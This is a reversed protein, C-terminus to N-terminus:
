IKVKYNKRARNTRTNRNSNKVGEDNSAEEVMEESAVEVPEAEVGKLEKLAYYGEKFSSENDKEKIDRIDDNYEPVEWTGNIEQISINNKVALESITETLDGQSNGSTYVCYGRSTPVLWCDDVVPNKAKWEIKAENLDVEDTPQYPLKKIQKIDPFEAKIDDMVTKGNVEGKIFYAVGNLVCVGDTFTMDFDPKNKSGQVSYTEVKPEKPETDAKASVPQAIDVVPAKVGGDNAAEPADAAVAPAKVADENVAAVPAKVPEEKVVDPKAIDVAVDANEPKVPEAPAVKPAVDLDPQSSVKQALENVQRMTLASKEPKSYKNGNGSVQYVTGNKGEFFYLDASEGSLTFKTVKKDDPFISKSLIAEKHLVKNLTYGSVVDVRNSVKSLDNNKLAGELEAYAAMKKDFVNATKDYRTSSYDLDIGRRISGDLIELSKLVNRMSFTATDGLMLGIKKNKSFPNFGTEQLKDIIELNKAIEPTVNELKSMQSKYENMEKNLDAFAGIVVYDAKTFAKQQYPKDQMIASIADLTARSYKANNGKILSTRMKVRNITKELSKELSYTADFVHKDLDSKEVRPKIEDGVGNRQENSNRSVNEAGLSATQHHKEKYEDLIYKYFKNGIKIDDLSTKIKGEAQLKIATEIVTRYYQETGEHSNPKPEYAYVAKGEKNDVSMLALAITKENVNSRSILCRGSKKELITKKNVSDVLKFGLGSFSINYNAKKTLGLEKVLRLFDDDPSPAKPNYEREKAWNKWKQVEEVDKKNLTAHEKRIKDELIKRQEEDTEDKLLKNLLSINTLSSRADKDMFGIYADEFGEDVSIKDYKNEGNVLESEDLIPEELDSIEDALKVAASMQDAISMLEPDLIVSDNAADVPKPEEVFDEEDLNNEVPTDDYFGDAVLQRYEEVADQSVTESNVDPERVDYQNEADVRAQNQQENFEYARSDEYSAYGDDFINDENFAYDFDRKIQEAIYYDNQTELNLPSINALPNDPKANLDSSKLLGIILKDLEDHAKNM